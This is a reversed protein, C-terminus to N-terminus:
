AGLGEYDTALAALVSAIEGREILQLPTAQGASPIPLALFRHFGEAGYIAKGLDVM